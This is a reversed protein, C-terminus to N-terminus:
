LFELQVNIWYTHAQLQGYAAGREVDLLLPIGSGVITGTALGGSPELLKAPGTGVHVPGQGTYQGSSVAMLGIDAVLMLKGTNSQIFLSRASNRSCTIHLLQPELSLANVLVGSGAEDLPSHAQIVQPRDLRVLAIEEYEVTFSTTQQLLFGQGFVGKCWLLLVLLRM